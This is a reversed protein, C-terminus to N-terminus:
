RPSRHGAPNKRTHGIGNKGGRIPRGGAIFIDPQPPRRLRRSRGSSKSRWKKAWAAFQKEVEAERCGGGGTWAEKKVRVVPLCPVGVRERIERMAYDRIKHLRQFPM